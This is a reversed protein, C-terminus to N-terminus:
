DEQKPAQNTDSPAATKHHEHGHHGHHGHHMFLHMLPCALVLLLPAFAALHAGHWFALYVAGATVLGLIALGKINTFCRFM